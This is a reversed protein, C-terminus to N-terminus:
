GACGRQAAEKGLYFNIIEQTKAKQAGEIDGKSKAVAALRASRIEAARYQSPYISRIKMKGITTKAYERMSERDIVNGGTKRSLSRLEALLKKARSDNRMALEAQEEIRGDNLADGHRAMMEMDALESSQKKLTKSEALQTIMEEGSPFGFQAALVESNTGSDSVMGYLGRPIRGPIVSKVESKLIKNSGVGETSMSLEDIEALIDQHKAEIDPNVFFDEALADNILDVADNASIDTNNEENYREAVTDATIGGEKPFLPKGFVGGKTKFHEPDVGEAAFSDRNLGGAKAAMALLTDNSKKLDNVSAELEKFQQETESGPIVEEGALHKKASYV